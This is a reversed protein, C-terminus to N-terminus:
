AAEPRKASVMVNAMQAIPRAHNVLRGMVVAQDVGPAARRAPAAPRLRPHFSATPAKMMVPTSIAAVPAMGQSPLSSAEMGTGRAWAISAPTSSM